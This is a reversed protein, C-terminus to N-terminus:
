ALLGLISWFCRPVGGGLRRCWRPAPCADRFVFGMAAFDRVTTSSGRQDRHDPRLSAIAFLMARPSVVGCWKMVAAAIRRRPRWIPWSLMSTPRRSFRRLASRADAIRGQALGPRYRAHAVVVAVVAHGARRGALMARWGHIPWCTASWTVPSTGSLTALQYATAVVRVAAPKRSSWM